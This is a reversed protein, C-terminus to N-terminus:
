KGTRPLIKEQEKPTYIITTFSDKKTKIKTKYKGVVETNNTFKYGNELNDLIKCYLRPEKEEKFGIKVNTFRFQYETIYEGQELEINEFDIENEKRTDLNNAIMQYEKKNTRYWVSYKNEENWAGTNIKSIRVADIPIYDTWTFLELEVNSKNEINKFQYEIEEGKKAEEKGLKEVDVEIDTKNNKFTFSVTKGEKLKIVKPNEDLIYDDPVYFEKVILNPYKSIEYEKTQAEGNEDTIIRELVNESEDYVEFEAGEIKENTDSIKSIKAKGKKIKNKINLEVEENWRIEVNVAEDIKYYEKPAKTEKLYYRGPKLYEIKIKGNVDTIYRGLELNEENFLAFEVGEIPMNNEEDKKNIVIKSKYADLFCDTSSGIEEYNSIYTIYSQTEENYSKAYFVPYTKIKVSDIKIQGEINEKINKEPIIIKFVNTNMHNTEINTDALIKTNDPFDLIEVDYSSINRNGNVKYEQILYKENEISQEYENIKEISTEPEKYKEKGNIGYEYLEQSVELVRRGRRLVDEFGVNEGYGVRTPEEYKQNPAVKQVLCHIATKTAYYLDDQCELNWEEYTSGMFGKYLIRWLEENDLMSLTVDYSDGAGTGIGPKEPEVCFAPQKENTEENKYVVYTVGKMSDKGKIKLLSTCDHDKELTVKDKALTVVPMFNFMLLIVVLLNIVKM